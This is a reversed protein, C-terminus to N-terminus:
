EKGFGFYELIARATASEVFAAFKQAGTNGKAHQLLVFGQKLPQHTTSPILWYKGEKQMQPSLALSLAIIGVDAAGTSAFQATQSINEGMVLKTRVKDYLKYYKLSEEARQGYPAHAPNAIAIRTVSPLLLTNMGEKSPDLKKSWLVIQGTGYPKVAALTKHQQELKEPYSLDASFFIDFPADNSIQEFFNGSSGYVLKISIDNSGASFVKVLSDMAFKLDAAAAILVEQHPQIPVAPSPYYSFSLASLGLFCCLFPLFRSM